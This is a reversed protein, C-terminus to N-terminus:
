KGNVVADNEIREEKTLNQNSSFLLMKRSDTKLRLQFLYTDIPKTQFTLKDSCSQLGVLRVEVKLCKISSSKDFIWSEKIANKVAVFM